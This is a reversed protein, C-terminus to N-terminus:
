REIAHMKVPRITGKKPPICHTAGLTTAQTTIGRIGSRHTSPRCLIIVFRVQRNKHGGYLVQIKKKKKVMTSM